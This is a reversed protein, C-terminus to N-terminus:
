YFTTIYIPDVFRPNQLVKWHLLALLGSRDTLLCGKSNAPNNVDEQRVGSESNWRRAITGQGCSFM